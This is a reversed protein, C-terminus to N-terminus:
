ALLTIWLARSRGELIVRLKDLEVQRATHKAALGRVAIVRGRVFAPAPDALLGDLIGARKVLLADLRDVVFCRIRRDVEDALLGNKQQNLAVRM